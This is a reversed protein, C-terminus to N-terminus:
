FISNMITATAGIHTQIYNGAQKGVETRGSVHAAVRNFDKLSNVSFAGGCAILDKAEEAKRYNPGFIIPIEWVAAELTNHIGVGFGGGVYATTAYRYISSLLGFCDIILCDVQQINTETAESYRLYPRKIKRCLIEIRHNSIEHPVVILKETTTQNFHNLIIKEDKEWTSGAVLVCANEAFSKILPLEKANEAIKAVRDFRTDGAVSANEIGINQLLKKSIDNQVFLHTFFSLVKRHSFGYPKFFLQNKRFVGSVLYTPIERRHLQELTNKWFEYKIFFAKEINIAEVFRKANRPTDIPFYCVIDALNYNKRVEYGSPSFFTLLIKKDGFREKIAEILPRGQEFEGLSAAHIWIYKANKDAKKLEEWIEQSGKQRSHMKGNFLAMIKIILEMLLMGINYAANYM